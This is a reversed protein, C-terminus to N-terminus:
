SVNNDSEKGNLIQVLLEETNEAYTRVSVNPYNGCVSKYDCYSCPSKGKKVLPVAKIDGTNLSVAMDKLLKESYTHLNEIQEATILKSFKTFSDKTRKVPIYIGQVNKEMAELVTEDELVVGSMKYTKNKASTIEDEDPYRPLTAEASKAPMYLVGAPQCESYDGKGYVVSFMYLLMQMNVGYVLDDFSFTKIGSKYDIVRLFTKGDTEFTDIRDVTGVFFIETGDSATIKAPYQKGDASIKYEFEKPVFDSQTLEEQLHEVIQASTDAIRSFAAKFRKSKGYDGGLQETYYEDLTDKILKKIKTSKLSIFSQKDNENMIKCLCYHIASGLEPSNLEIKRKPFINLGSRCFYKFPCINYSEFGTASVYMKKGFLSEGTKGDLKHMCTLNISDLYELKVAYEPIEKLVSRISASVKDTRSYEQVFSYYASAPSTCFYLLSIDKDKSLIKGNLMNEVQSVAFSPYMAKGSIDALPYSIFLKESPASFTNYAVFREEAIRDEIGGSLKLGSQELLNRDRDSFVGTTKPSFPLIGENAGIIFVVSPDALRSMNAAAFTVCDLTQPPLSVNQKSMVTSFLDAFQKLSLKYGDLIKYLSELCSCLMEWLQKLERVATIVASDNGNYNTIKETIVTSLKIKDFFAFLNKCITGGDTDKCSERLENLPEIITKRINEALGEEDMIFPESWMNGEVNWKYVYDETASIDDPSIGTMDTKIYRLIDETYYKESSAIELASCVFIIISKHMVSDNKDKFVPIDYREAAAEFVSNYSEPNRSVVAIDSYHYGNEIVIHKIQACVVDVEKYIETCETIHVCDANGEYVNRVPRLINSSIHALAESKFRKQETLMTTEAKIGHNDCIQRLRSHTHDTTNFVSHKEPTKNGTSLCIDLEEAQTLMVEILQIEDATFSKFEDIFIQQGNFYQGSAARKAAESIDSLSDKYGNDSLIKSYASYILSMDSVKEKINDSLLNIKSTLLEPTVANLTMDKVFDLCLDLFAPSKSQRSYYSLGENESVTKLTRHMLATRVIDDAYQGKLGGCQLFITKALRAFSLVTVNNFQQIGLYSYLKRDFEFSFQDPVIVTIKKEKSVATKIRDMLCYSKGTGAGGLIMRLM